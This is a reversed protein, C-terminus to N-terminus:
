EEQGLIRPVAFRGGRQEPAGSLAEEPSLGPTVEDARMVNELKFVHSMPEVDPTAVEGIRAVYDLIAVLQPELTELEEDSLNIRALKSLHELDFKQSNVESM